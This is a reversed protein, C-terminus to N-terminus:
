NYHTYEVISKVKQLIVINDNEDLKYRILKIREDFTEDDRPEYFDYAEKEFDENAQSDAEEMTKFEHDKIEGNWDEYTWFENSM